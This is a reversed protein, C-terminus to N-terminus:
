AKASYTGNNRAFTIDGDAQMNDSLKFNFHVEEGKEIGLASRPVSLQMVNGSVTYSAAGTEEFAWGGTSKEVTVTAEDANGRNIIYEFGEWNASNGTSDTDILIRMWAPDTYSTINDVTEIRFYVNDNDYTM